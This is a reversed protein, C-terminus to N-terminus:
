KTPESALFTSPKRSDESKIHWNPSLKKRTPYSIKRAKWIKRSPNSEISARNSSLFCITTIEKEARTRISLDKTTSLYPKRKSRNPNSNVKWNTLIWSLNWLSITKTSKSMESPLRTRNRLNLWNLNWEKKIRWFMLNSRILKRVSNNWTIKSYMGLKFLIM